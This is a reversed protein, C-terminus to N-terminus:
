LPDLVPALGAFLTEFRETHGVDEVHSGGSATSHGIPSPYLTELNISVIILAIWDDLLVQPRGRSEDILRSLALPTHNDM